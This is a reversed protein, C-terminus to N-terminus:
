SGCLCSKLYVSVCELVVCSFQGYNPIRVSSWVGPILGTVAGWRMGAPRESGVWERRSCRRTRGPPCGSGLHFLFNAKLSSTLGKRGLTWDSPEM